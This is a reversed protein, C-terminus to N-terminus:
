EDGPIAILEIEFLLASGPPIPDRSRDGYGIDAPIVFQWVEGVRM